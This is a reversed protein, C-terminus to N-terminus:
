DEFAEACETCWIRGDEDCPVKPGCVMTMECNTCAVVMPVGVAEFAALSISGDEGDPKPYERGKSKLYSEVTMM